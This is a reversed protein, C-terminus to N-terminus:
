LSAAAASCMMRLAPSSSDWAPILIAPLFILLRLCASLAVRIIVEHSIYPSVTSLTDSKMKQINHKLGVKENGEKMKMLLSKLKEESEGMLTM